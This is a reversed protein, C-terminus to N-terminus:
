SYVYEAAAIVDCSPLKGSASATCFDLNDLLHKAKKKAVALWCMGTFSSLKRKTRM